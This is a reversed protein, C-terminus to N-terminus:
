LGVLLCGVFHIVPNAFSFVCFSYSLINYPNLMWPKQFIFYSSSTKFTCHPLVFMKTKVALGFDVFCSLSLLRFMLIQLSPVDLIFVMLATVPYVSFSLYLLMSIFSFHWLLVVHLTILMTLFLMWCSLFGIPHGGFSFWAAAQWCLLKIGGYLFIKIMLTKNSGVSRKKAM